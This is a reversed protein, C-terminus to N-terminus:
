FAVNRLCNLPDHKRYLILTRLCSNVVGIGATVNPGSEDATDVLLRWRTVSFQLEFGTLCRTM